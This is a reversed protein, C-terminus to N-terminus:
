GKRRKIEKLIKEVETKSINLSFTDKM